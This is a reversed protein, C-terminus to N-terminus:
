NFFKISFVFLNCLTWSGIFHTSSFGVFLTPSFGVLSCRPYCLVFVSCLFMYFFLVVYYVGLLLFLYFFVQCYNTQQSSGCCSPIGPVGSLKLDLDCRLLYNTLLYITLLLDFRITWPMVHWAIRTKPSELHILKLLDVRLNPYILVVWSPCLRWVWQWYFMWPWHLDRWKSFSRLSTKLLSLSGSDQGVRFSWHVGFLSACFHLSSHLYLLPHHHLPSMPPHPALSPGRPRSRVLKPEMSLSFLSVSFLTLRNSPLSPFLLSPPHCSTLSLQLPSPNKKCWTVTKLKYNDFSFFWSALYIIYILCFQRILSHWKTQIAVLLYVFEFPSLYEM